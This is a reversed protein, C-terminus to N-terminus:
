PGVGLRQAFEREHPPMAQWDIRQRADEYIARCARGDLRTAETREAALAALVPYDALTYLAHLIAPDDSPVQRQAVPPPMEAVQRDAAPPWWGGTKLAAIEDASLRQAAEYSPQWWDIWQQVEDAMAERGVPQVCLLTAMADARMRLASWRKMKEAEAPDDEIADWVSAFRQSTADAPRFQGMAEALWYAAQYQPWAAFEPDAARHQVREYLVRVRDAIPGGPQEIIAHLLRAFAERDGRTIIEDIGALSELPDSSLRVSELEGAWGAAAIENMGEITLAPTTRGACLGLFSDITGSPERVSALEIVDAVDLLAGTLADSRAQRTDVRMYEYKPSCYATTGSAVALTKIAWRWRDWHPRDPWRDRQPWDDPRDLPHRGAEIDGLMQEIIALARVTDPSPEGLEDALVALAPRARIAARQLDIM